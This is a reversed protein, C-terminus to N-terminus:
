TSLLKISQSILCKRLVAFPFMYCKTTSPVICPHNHRRQLLPAPHGVLCIVAEELAAHLDCMGQALYARISYVHPMLM